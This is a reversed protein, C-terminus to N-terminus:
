QYTQTGRTSDLKSRFSILTIWFVARPHQNAVWRVSDWFRWSHLNLFIMPSRYVNLLCRKAHSTASTAAKYKALSLVSRLTHGWQRTSSLKSILELKLLHLISEWHIATNCWTSSDLSKHVKIKIQNFSLFSFFCTSFQLFTMSNSVAHISPGIWASVGSRWLETFTSNINM